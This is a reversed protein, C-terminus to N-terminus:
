HKIKRNLRFVLVVVQIDGDQTEAKPKLRTDVSRTKEKELYIYSFNLTSENMSFTGFTSLNRWQFGDSSMKDIIRFPGTKNMKDNKM